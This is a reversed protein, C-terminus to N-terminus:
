SIHNEFYILIQQWDTVRTVNKPLNDTKNWSYNGFLLGKIGIESAAMIHKLQDDILYDARISKALEAKTMNISDKTPSDFFGTFIFDDFVDPYYKELWDKTLQKVSNRRTTLVILEFHKKLQLLAERAGEIMGYTAIHGSDIYEVAREEGENYEVKWVEGWHEQYDDITLNTDFKQNSYEIFAKANAAIVDDVDIAIVSKSQMHANM